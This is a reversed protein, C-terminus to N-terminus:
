LWRVEGGSPSEVGRPVRLYLPELLRVDDGDPESALREAARRAIAAAARPPMARSLGFAAALEGAAVVPRDGFRQAITAADAMLPADAGRELVHADQAGARAVAAVADPSAELWAPLSAEGLIPRGLGVALGKALAMAVRLGTFSGPGTGVAVASVGAPGRGDLLALLRPLLEASQRQDSTWATERITSGDLEALALSIDGSAAEIAVIM